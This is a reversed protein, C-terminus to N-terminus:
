ITDNRSRFFVIATNSSLMSSRRLRSSFWTWWTIFTDLEERALRVRGSSVSCLSSEMCASPVAVVLTNHTFNTFWCTDSDTNRHILMYLYMATNKMLYMQVHFCSTALLISSMYYVAQFFIQMTKNIAKLDLVVSNLKKWLESAKSNQLISCLCM